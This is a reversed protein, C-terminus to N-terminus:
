KDGNDDATGGDANEEKRIRKMMDAFTENEVFGDVDIEEAIGEETIMNPHM